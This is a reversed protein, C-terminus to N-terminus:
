KPLDSILASGPPLPLLLHTRIQHLVRDIQEFVECNEFRLVTMGCRSLFTDRIVDRPPTPFHPAGDLEIILLSADCFFDVIYPGLVQQRRFKAGDLRRNRVYEWLVREASTSNRRLNRARFTM